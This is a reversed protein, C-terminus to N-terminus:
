VRKPDVWVLVERGGARASSGCAMVVEVFKKPIYVLVDWIAQLCEWICESIGVVTAKMVKGTWVIAKWLGKPLEVFVASLCRVFANWVDNMTIKQFLGAVAVATTHVFSALAKLMNVIAVATAVVGSWIWVGAAKVAGPIRKILKWVWKCVESVLEGVIEVFRALKDPVKKMADWIARPARKVGQWAEGVKKRLLSPVEDWHKKLWEVRRKIPLVIVHKPVSWVLFSPVDWVFFKGFKYMGMVAREARRMATIHKCKWRRFGGGRRSPLYAVIEKHGNQSALRLALQGDTAILSDDAGHELLLKVLALNGLEAAYQLPTRTTHQPIWYSKRPYDIFHTATIAYANINAGTQLLFKVSSSKGAHIAALLPSKLDQFTTEPTVLRLEFLTDLLEINATSIASFYTTIIQQKQRIIRTTIKIEETINEGLPIFGPTVDKPLTPYSLLPLSASDGSSLAKALDELQEHIDEEELAYLPLQEEIGLEEESRVEELTPVVIPLPTKAMDRLLAAAEQVSNPEVRDKM